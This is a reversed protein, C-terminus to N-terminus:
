IAILAGREAGTAEFTRSDGELVAARGTFEQWRRVIMDCYAPNLECGLCVRGTMEAAVLTSGSGLFPDYVLDGSKSNNLIPRRMCDVPKQTSHGTRKESGETQSTFGVMSTIDWVTTQKRDGAWHGTEGKRVVYWCPEHQWHYHGRSIAFHAKRWIIQARREFGAAALSLAVEPSYLSACWVYAVDGPFLQWAPTWDARDDNLVVGLARAGTISGDRRRPSSEPRARWAPDYEVGYPPDTVMLHPKAGALLAGVLEADTCDGCAIRHKGCLWVDGRASVPREPLEPAADPDTLGMNGAAVGSAAAAAEALLKEVEKDTFGALQALGDELEELEAVEAALLDDDWEGDEGIRNDALRLTRIQGPTLDSCDIAPVEALGEAKAAILRGHGAIILRGGAARAWLIPNRFGVARIIARLKAIQNPPHKKANRAYAVFEDVPVYDIALRPLSNSGSTLREGTL